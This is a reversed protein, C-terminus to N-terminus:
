HTASQLRFLIQQVADRRMEARLVGQERSKGIVADEDFVYDRRVTLRNSNLLTKGSPRKALYNLSYILEFEREKGTNPDVSLIRRDFLSDSLTLIVDADKRNNLIQTDTGELFVSVEDRLAESAQIYLNKLDPPLINAGRLQFGCASLLGAFIIILAIRM